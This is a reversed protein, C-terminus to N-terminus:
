RTHRSTPQRFLYHCNPEDLFELAFGLNGDLAIARNVGAVFPVPAHSSRLSGLSLLTATLQMSAHGAVINFSIM